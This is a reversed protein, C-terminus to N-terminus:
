GKSSCLVFTRVSETPTSTECINFEWAVQAFLDADVGRIKLVNAKISVPTLEADVLQSARAVVATMMPSPEIIERVARAQASSDGASADVLFIEGESGSSVSLQTEIGRQRYDSQIWNAAASDTAAALAVADAATRARARELAAVGVKSVGWTLLVLIAIIAAALITINGRECCLQRHNLGGSKPDTPATRLFM